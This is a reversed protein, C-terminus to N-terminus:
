QARETQRETVSITASASEEGVHLTTEVEGYQHTRVQESDHREWDV